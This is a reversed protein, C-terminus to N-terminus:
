SRSPFVGQLAIIFRLGLYPQRNNHPQQNGIPSIANSKMKANPQEQSYLRPTTRGGSYDAWVNNDPRNSDASPGEEGVRCMAQHAHMPIQNETLVVTDSGGSEGIVRPTLGPGAGEHMPTRERLDPLAFNTRGDGGYMTGLISFLATHQQLPLIQGECFAWGQPAYNGAFIRIEGIYPDM